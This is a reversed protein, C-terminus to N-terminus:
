LSTAGAPLEVLVCPEVSELKALQADDLPLRSGHTFPNGPLLALGFTDEFMAQLLECTKPSQSWFRVRHTRLDWSIDTVKMKPLSQAKLRNRVLTKIDEKEFRSLREKENQAMYEREAQELHARLLDSPIVYKDHRLGFNVFHDFHVNYPEFEVRLPTEIPVWGYREEDEEEPDLPEFAGQILQEVIKEKFEEGEPPTQIYFLKYTLTGQLAGM